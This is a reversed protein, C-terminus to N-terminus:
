VTSVHGIPNLAVIQTSFELGQYSMISDRIHNTLIGRFLQPESLVIYTMGKFVGNSPVSHRDISVLNENSLHIASEPVITVVELPPVRNVEDVVPSRGMKNDVIVQVETEWHRLSQEEEIDKM